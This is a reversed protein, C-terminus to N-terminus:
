KAEKGFLSFQSLGNGFIFTISIGVIALMQEDTIVFNPYFSKVLVLALAAVTAQFKHSKILYEIKDNVRIGEFSEGMIYASFISVILFMQETTFLKPFVTDVFMFIIASVFGLVIRLKDKTM